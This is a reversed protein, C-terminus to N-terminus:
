AFAASPRAARLTQHAAPLGITSSRLAHSLMVIVIVGGLGFAPLNFAVDSDSPNMLLLFAAVTDASNGDLPTAAYQVGLCLGDAANWDSETMEQGNPLLWSIDKPRGDGTHKGYLFEGRYFVGYSSRLKLLRQVFNYFTHETDLKDWDAWSIANDQCYANNNGQQTRGFEDGALLM